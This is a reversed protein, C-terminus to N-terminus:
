ALDSSTVTLRVTKQAKPATITLIGNTIQAQTDDPKIPSPLMVSRSFSGFFCEAFHVTANDPWDPATRKGRITITDETVHIDLDEQATGAIIARIILTDPTEAVDVALQGEQLNIWDM